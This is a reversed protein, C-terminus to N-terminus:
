SATCRKVICLDPFVVPKSFITKHETYSGDKYDFDCYQFKLMCGTCLNYRRSVGSTYICWLCYLFASPSSVATYPEVQHTNIM